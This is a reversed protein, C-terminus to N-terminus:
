IVSKEGCTSTPLLGNIYEQLYKDKNGATIGLYLTIILHFKDLVFEAGFFYAVYKIWGASDGCIIIKAQEFNEFFIKGYEKIFEATKKVGIKTKNPRIITKVRKNVLKHNINDTYWTVLRMYYKGAKRKFTWFKRHGDDIAVFIPQNPELKVKKGNEEVVILHKFFRHVTSLSIDSKKLIDCIDRYRKGDAFYEIATQKIDEGIRKYKPLELIEDVLCVRIWKQLKEDFYEYIRRKYTIMGYIIKRTRYQYDVIKYRVEGWM